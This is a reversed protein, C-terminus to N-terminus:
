DKEKLRAQDDIAPISVPAEKRKLACSMQLLCAKRCDATLYCDRESRYSHGMQIRKGKIQKQALASAGPPL